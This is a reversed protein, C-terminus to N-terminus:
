GPVEAIAREIVRAIQERREAPVLTTSSRKKAFVPESSPDRFDRMRGLRILEADVRALRGAFVTYTPTGLLAAERSMTGGGGIMLDAYALLSRGDVAGDPIRVANSRPAREAQLRTRTLLVTQVDDRAMAVQLLREFRPNAERHYLAGEPPSRFVVIIRDPDLQLEDLVRTHPRFGALYLEEKWGEYTRVRDPAAGFRRLAESPFIRPVIVRRALRFSVHNAPQYEYDMMTVAPLGAARSAVVQAYSGHSLAVDPRFRLAFRRLAMARLAISRAKAARGSPSEGGIVLVDPWRQRALAATQAHGRATVAVVHGRSRFDDVLVEFLAVHPSNSLDIWIRM